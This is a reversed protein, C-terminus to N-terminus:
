GDKNELIIQSFASDNVPELKARSIMAEVWLGTTNLHECNRVCFLSRLCAFPRSGQYPLGNKDAIIL